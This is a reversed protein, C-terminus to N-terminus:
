QTAATALSAVPKGALFLELHDLCVTWGERHGPIQDEPLEHTLVLKTGADHEFLEITVTSQSGDQCSQWTFVLREPPVIELYTGRPTCPGGGTMEITYAGGPRFDNAVKSSGGKIGFFWQSMKVPDSLASFVRTREHKLQRVIQLSHTPNNM